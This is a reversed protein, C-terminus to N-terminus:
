LLIKLERVNIEISSNSVFDSPLILEPSAKALQKSFVHESFVLQSRSQHIVHRIEELDSDSDLVSSDGPIVTTRRRRIPSTAHNASLSSACDSQSDIFNRYDDGFELLRRAAEEALEESYPESMYKEQYNDWAQESFSSLQEETGVASNKEVDSDGERKVTGPMGVTVAGAVPGLKFMPVQRQRPMQPEEDTETESTIDGPATITYALMAPDSKAFRDPIKRSTMLTGSFSGSKFLSRVLSGRPSIDASSKRHGSGETGSSRVTGEAGSSNTLKQSHHQSDSGVTMGDSGSESKRALTRKRLRTKRRRLSGNRSGSGEVALLTHEDVTSSSLNAGSGSKGTPPTHTLMQHLASESISFNALPDRGNQPTSSAVQSIGSVSWPREGAAQCRKTRMVVKSANGSGSHEPSLPFSRENIPTTEPDPIAEASSTLGGVLLELQRCTTISGNLDESSQSEKDEDSDGTTYEGSADCSDAPQLLSKADAQEQLHQKLWQKIRAYKTQTNTCMKGGEGFVLPEFVRVARVAAAMKDPSADERVMEEAQSVLRQIAELSRRVHPKGPSGEMEKKLSENKKEENTGNVSEENDIGNNNTANESGSGFDLRVVVSNRKTETHRRVSLSTESSSGSGDSKGNMRAPSPSGQKYTWEDESSDEASKGESNVPCLLREQDEAEVQERVVDQDSDTDHHKFYFTACNPAKRNSKNFKSTDDLSRRVGLPSVAKGGSTAKRRCTINYHNDNVDITGTKSTLDTETSPLKMDTNVTSTNRKRQHHPKTLDNSPVVMVVEESCSEDGTHEAAPISSEESPPSTDMVCLEELEDEFYSGDDTLRDSHNDGSGGNASLRPHKSVPEEDSDSVLLGVPSQLM